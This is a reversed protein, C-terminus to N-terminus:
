CLARLLAKTHSSPSPVSAPCIIPNQARFSFSVKELHFGLERCARAQGNSGSQFFDCPSPHQSFSWATCPYLTAMTVPRSHIGPQRPYLSAQYGSWVVGDDRSSREFNVLVYIERSSMNPKQQVTQQKERSCKYYECEFCDWEQEFKQLLIPGYYMVEAESYCM